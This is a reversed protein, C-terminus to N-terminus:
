FHLGFAFDAGVGGPTTYKYKNRISITTPLSYAVGADLTFRQGLRLTAGGRLSFCAYGKSVITGAGIESGWIAGDNNSPEDNFLHGYLAFLGMAKSFPLIVEKSTGDVIEASAAPDGAIEPYDSIIVSPAVIASVRTGVEDRGSNFREAFKFNLGVMNASNKVNPVLQWGLTTSISYKSKKSQEAMLQQKDETEKAEARQKYINETNYLKTWLMEKSKSDFVHFGLIMSTEQYLLTVDVWADVGLQAAIADLEQPNNIPTTMVLRGNEVVTRRVRCNMCQLVKTVSHKRFADAVQTELYSEYTRPIGEGLAVRRISVTRLTNLAKARLDFSFENVLDQLVENFSKVLGQEAAPPNPSPNAPTTENASALGHAFVAAVLALGKAKNQLHVDTRMKFM